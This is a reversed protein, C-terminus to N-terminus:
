PKNFNSTAIGFLQSYPLTMIFLADILSPDNPNQQLSNLQMIFKGKKMNEDLKKVEKRLGTAQWMELKSTNNHLIMM